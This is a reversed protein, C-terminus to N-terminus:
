SLKQKPQKLTVARVDSFLAMHSDTKGDKLHNHAQFPVHLLQLYFHPNQSVSSKLQGYQMTQTLLLPHFIKLIDTEWKNQLQDSNFCMKLNIM